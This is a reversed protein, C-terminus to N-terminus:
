HGGTVGKCDAISLCDAIKLFLVFCFLFFGVSIVFLRIYFVFLVVLLCVFVCM